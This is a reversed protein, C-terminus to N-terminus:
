EQGCTAISNDSVLRRRSVFTQVCKDLYKSEGHRHVLQSKRYQNEPEGSAEVSSPHSINPDASEATSASAKQTVTYPDASLTSIDVGSQRLLAEYHQIRRVLAQERTRGKILRPNNPARPVCEVNHRLCAHCPQQKDCKVKRKFCRICSHANAHKGSPTSVERTAM